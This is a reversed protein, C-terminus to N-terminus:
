NIGRNYKLVDLNYKTCFINLKKIKKFSVFHLTGTRDMYEFGTPIINTVNIKEINNELAYNDVVELRFILSKNCTNM